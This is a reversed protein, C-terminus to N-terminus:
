KPSEPYGADLKLIKKCLVFFGYLHFLFCFSMSNHRAFRLIERTLELPPKIKRTNMIRWAEWIPNPEFKDHKCMTLKWILHNPYMAIPGFRLAAPELPSMNEHRHKSLSATVRQCALASSSSSVTAEDDPKCKVSSSSAIKSARSVVKWPLILDSAVSHTTDKGRRCANPHSTRM